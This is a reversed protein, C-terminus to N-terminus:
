TQNRHAAFLTPYSRTEVIAEQLGLAQRASIIAEPPGELEVFAGFPTQDLCVILKNGHWLAREKAMEMVPALGLARLITELAGRDAVETEVESRIKFIPDPDRPGKWTLTTRGGFSRVRVAEHRARLVGERDWLTSQEPGSPVMRRYGLAELRSELGALSPVRLKLEIEKADM